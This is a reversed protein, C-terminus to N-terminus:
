RALAAFDYQGDAAYLIYSADEGLAETAADIQRRVDSASYGNVQLWPMMTPRSDSPILELRLKIQGAALRVADYPNAEPDDLADEATTLRTGLTSPMLVPSVTAAGFTVPNGGYPETGDGFASLGPMTQMVRCHAGVAARLDEVFKQLVALPTLSTLESNGYYAQSTQNPFQVGDLMVAEFGADALEKALDIVYRHADPSYPNLWPKGGKEKSNDLWTYGPYDALTVKASALAFPAKPDKFAFLRPIAAFGKDSLRRLATKLQDLTLADDGATGAQVALDTESRYHLVGNEDKLDFLVANLGAEKAADLRTELAAIDKLESAPLVFARLSGDVDVREPATTTVPATTEPTTEGGATPTTEGTLSSDDSVSPRANEMMYKATFFGATVVLAGLLVYGAAKLVPHRKKSFVRGTRRRFKKAM